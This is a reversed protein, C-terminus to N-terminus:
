GISDMVFIVSEIGKVNKLKDVVKIVFGYEVANHAEVFISKEAVSKSSAPTAINKVTDELQDVNKMPINNLSIKSDQDIIVRIEKNLTDAEKVKGKPLQVKISSQIMPSTIMFIVLLTLATDILPTLVIENSMGIESRRLRRFNRKM